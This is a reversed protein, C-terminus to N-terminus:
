NGGLKHAASLLAQADSKLAARVAGTVVHVSAKGLQDVSEIGAIALEAKLVKAMATINQKDSWLSVLDVWEDSKLEPELSVPGSEYLPQAEDVEPMEDYKKM